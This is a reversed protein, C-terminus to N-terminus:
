ASHKAFPKTANHTLFTPPASIQMNKVLPQLNQCLVNHNSLIVIKGRIEVM